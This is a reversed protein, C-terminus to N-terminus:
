NRHTALPTAKPVKRRRLNERLAAALRAARESRARAAASSADSERGGPAEAAQPPLDADRPPQSM